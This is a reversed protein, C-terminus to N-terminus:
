LVCGGGLDQTVVGTVSEFLFVKTPLREHTGQLCFALNDASTHVTFEVPNSRNFGEDKLLVSDQTEGALGAYTGSTNVAYSEVAVAANKLDAAAAARWGKERQRLFTPIAISALIGIIIVVVLLEILTFGDDDRRRM